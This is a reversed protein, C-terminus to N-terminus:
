TNKRKQTHATTFLITSKPKPTGMNMALRYQQIKNALLKLANKRDINM